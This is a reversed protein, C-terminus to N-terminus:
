RSARVMALEWTSGLQEFIAAARALHEPRAATDDPMHRGLEAHARATEYPMELRRAVALARRWRTRAQRHRGQM